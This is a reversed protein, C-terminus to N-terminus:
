PSCVCVALWTHVYMNIIPPSAKNQPFHFIILYAVERRTTKQKLRRTINAAEKINGETGIEFLVFIVYVDIFVFRIMDLALGVNRKIFLVIRCYRTICLHHNKIANRSERGTDCPNM